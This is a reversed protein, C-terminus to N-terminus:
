FCRSLVPRWDCFQGGDCVLLYVKSFTPPVQWRADDWKDLTTSSFDFICIKGGSRAVVQKAFDCVEDPDRRQSAIRQLMLDVLRHGDIAVGYKALMVDPAAFGGIHVGKKHSTLDLAIRFPGEM